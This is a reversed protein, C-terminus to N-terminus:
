GQSLANWLVHWFLGCKGLKIKYRSREKRWCINDSYSVWHWTSPIYCSDCLIGVKTPNDCPGSFLLSYLCLFFGLHLTFMFHVLSPVSFVQSCLQLLVMITNVFHPWSLSCQFLDESGWGTESLPLFWLVRIKRNFGVLDLDRVERVDRWAVEWTLAGKVKTSM